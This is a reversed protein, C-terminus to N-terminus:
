KAGAATIMRDIEKPTVFWKGDQKVLHLHDTEATAIDRGRFSAIVKIKGRLTAKNEDKPDVTPKIDGECELAVGKLREMLPKAWKPDIPGGPFTEVFGGIDKGDLM